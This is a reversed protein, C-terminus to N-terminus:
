EDAGACFLLRADRASVAAGASNKYFYGWTGDPMPAGAAANPDPYAADFSIIVHKCVSEASKWEAIIGRLDLVSQWSLNSLGWGMGNDGWTAGDGWTGDRTWGYDAAYLVVWFRAWLAANNDWNWNKTPLTVKREFTGDLKLTWWTGNANVIRITGAVGLYAKLQELMAYASGARRWSDLWLLLRALFSADSEALGRRIRRDRGIVSLAESPALSPFKARIGELAFQILLDCMLGFVYIYKFGTTFGAAVRDRMWPPILRRVADRMRLIDNAM